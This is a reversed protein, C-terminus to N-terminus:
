GCSYFPFWLLVFISLLDWSRHGQTWHIDYYDVCCTSITEALSYTPHIILNVMDNLADGRRIPAKGESYGWALLCPSYANYAESAEVFSIWKVAQGITRTSRYQCRARKVAQRLTRTLCTQCRVRLYTLKADLPLHLWAHRWWFDSPSCRSRWGHRWSLRVCNRRLEASSLYTTKTSHSTWTPTQKTGHWLTRAMSPYWSLQPVLLRGYVQGKTCISRSPCHEQLGKTCVHTARVAIFCSARVTLFMLNLRVNECRGNGELISTVAVIKLGSLALVFTAGKPNAHFDHAFWTEVFWLYRWRSHDSFQLVRGGPLMCVTYCWAWAFSNKCFYTRVKISQQGHSCGQQPPNISKNFRQVPASMQRGQEKGSGQAKVPLPSRARLGISSTGHVISFM